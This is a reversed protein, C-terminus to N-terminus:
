RRHNSRVVVFSIWASLILAVGLIFFILGLYASFFRWLGFVSRILDSDAATLLRVCEPLLIRIALGSIVISIGLAVLVSVVTWKETRIRDYEEARRSASPSVLALSWLFGTHVYATLLGAVYFVIATLGCAWAARRGIAYLSDLQIPGVSLTEKVIALVSTFWDAGAITSCILVAAISIFRVAAVSRPARGEIRADRIDAWSLSKQESM